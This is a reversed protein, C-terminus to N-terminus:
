WIVKSWNEEEYGEKAKKIIKMKETNSILDSIINNTNASDAFRTTLLKESLWKLYHQFPLDYETTSEYKLAGLVCEEIYITPFDLDHLKAWIKAIKIQNQRKSERIIRIHEIINTQTWTDKKSVYISHDNTYGSQKKGPVLDVKIDNHKIGISVNQKRIAYNNKIFFNV